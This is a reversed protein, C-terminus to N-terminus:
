ITIHALQLEESMHISNISLNEQFSMVIWGNYHTTIFVYLM